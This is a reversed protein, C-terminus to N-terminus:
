QRPEWRCNVPDESPVARTDSVLAWRLALDLACAEAETVTAFRRADAHWDDDLDRTKIEARYSM